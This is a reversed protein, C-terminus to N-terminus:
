LLELCLVKKKNYLHSVLITHSGLMSFTYRKFSRLAISKLCASFFVDDNDHYSGHLEPQKQEKIVDKIHLAVNTHQGCTDDIGKESSQNYLM